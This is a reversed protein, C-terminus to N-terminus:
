TEPYPLPLQSDSPTPKRLKDKSDEYEELVKQVKAPVEFRIVERKWDTLQEIFDTDIEQMLDPHEIQVRKYEQLTTDILRPLANYLPFRKHEKYDLMCWAILRTTTARLTRFQYDLTMKQGSAINDSRDEIKVLLALQKKPKSEVITNLRLLFRAIKGNDYEKQWARFTKTTPEENRDKLRWRKLDSDEIDLLERIKRKGAINKQYIARKEKDQLPKNHSLVRLIQKVTARRHDGILHIVKKQFLRPAMSEEEDVDNSLGEKRRIKRAKKLHEEKFGPRIHPTLSSDIFNLPEKAYKGIVQDITVNADEVTDHIACLTTLTILLGKKEPVHPLVDLIAALAARIEHAIYPKNEAKRVRKKRQEHHAAKTGVSSQHFTDIIRLNRNREAIEDRYIHTHTETAPLIYEGENEGTELLMEYYARLATVFNKFALYVDRRSGKESAQWKKLEPEESKSILATAGKRFKRRIKTIAERTIKIATEDPTHPPPNEWKEKLLAPYQELDGQHTLLKLWIKVMREHHEVPIDDIINDLKLYEPICLYKKELHLMYADEPSACNAPDTNNPFRKEFIEFYGVKVRRSEEDRQPDPQIEETSM